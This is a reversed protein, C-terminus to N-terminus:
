LDTYGEDDDETGLCGVEEDDLTAPVFPIETIESTITAASIMTLQSENFHSALDDCDMGQSTMLDVFNNKQAVKMLKVCYEPKITVMKRDTLIQCARDNPFFAPYTRVVNLMNVTTLYNKLSAKAKEASGKILSPLLFGTLNHALCSPVFRGNFYDVPTDILQVQQKTDYALSLKTKLDVKDVNVIVGEVGSTLVVQYKPNRWIGNDNIWGVLQPNPCAIVKITTDVAILAEVWKRSDKGVITVSDFRLIRRIGNLDTAKQLLKVISRDVSFPLYASVGLSTSERDDGGRIGRTQTLFEKAYELDGIGYEGLKQPIQIVRKEGTWKFTRTIFDNYGPKDRSAIMLRLLTKILARGRQTPEVELSAGFISNVEIVFKELKSRDSATFIGLKPPPLKPILSGKELRVVDVIAHATAIEMARVVQVEVNHRKLFAEGLTDFLPEGRITPAIYVEENLQIAVGAFDKKSKDNMTVGKDAYAAQFDDLPLRGLDQVLEQIDIPREVVMPYFSKAVPQVSGGNVFTHTLLEHSMMQTKRQTKLQIYTYAASADAPTSILARVTAYQATKPTQKLVTSTMRGLMSNQDIYAAIIDGDQYASFDIVSKTFDCM